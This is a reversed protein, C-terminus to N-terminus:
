ISIRIYNTADEDNAVIQVETDIRMDAGFADFYRSTVMLRLKTQLARLETLLRLRHASECEDLADVIVFVKSHRQM